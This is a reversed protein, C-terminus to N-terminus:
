TIVFEHTQNSAQVIETLTKRTRQVLETERLVRKLGVKMAHVVEHTEAQIEAIMIQEALSRSEQVEQLLQAQELAYGIQLGVQKFREIESDQWQHTQSCHHTAIAYLTQNVFVPIILAAQVEWQHFQQREEPTLSAEMVDNIIVEEGQSLKKLIEGPYQM